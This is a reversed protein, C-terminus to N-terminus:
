YFSVMEVDDREERLVSLLVPFGAVFFSPINNHMGFMLVNESFYSYSVWQALLWSHLMVKQLLQNFNLWLM